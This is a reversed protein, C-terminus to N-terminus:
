CERLNLPSHDFIEASFQMSSTGGFALALGFAATLFRPATVLFNRRREASSFSLPAVHLLTLIWFFGSLKVKDPRNLFNGCRLSMPIGPM